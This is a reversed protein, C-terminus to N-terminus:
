LKKIIFIITLGVSEVFVESIANIMAIEDDSTISEIELKFTNNQTIVSIFAELVKKYLCFKKNNMIILCGPIKENTIIDKYLIILIQEFGKPRYWTGEIFLHKRKRIHSISIYNIWIAYINLNLKSKNEEFNYFYNFERLLIDENPIIINHKEFITYLKFKLSNRHWKKILKKIKNEDFKFTYKNNNYIIKIKEFVTKIKYEEKINNLYNYINNTFEEWENLINNNFPEIKELNYCEDSHDAVMKFKNEPKLDSDINFEIKANCFRKGGVRNHEDKRYNRCRYYIKNNYSNNVKKFNM